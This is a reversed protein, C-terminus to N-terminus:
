ITTGHYSTVNAGTMQACFNVAIALYLHYFLRQREQKLLDRFGREAQTENQWVLSVIRVIEADLYKASGNEPGDLDVMCQRAEDVEAKSHALSSACTSAHHLKGAHMYLHVPDSPATELGGRSGKVYSLGVNNVWGAAATGSAIFIGIVVVNKSRSRPKTCERGPVVSNVGGNGIACITKGAYWLPFFVRDFLPLTQRALMMVGSAM